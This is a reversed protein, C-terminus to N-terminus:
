DRHLEEMLLVVGGGHGDLPSCAISCVISRGIRNVAALEVPGTRQQSTRCEDVVARLEGIPLGFDLGFFPQETVEQSRLGWLEEAGPELQAGSAQTWSSSARSSARCCAPWSAAGRRLEGSRLRM